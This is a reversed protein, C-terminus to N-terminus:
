VLIFMVCFIFIVFSVLVIVISTKVTYYITLPSKFFSRSKLVAVVTSVAMNVHFCCTMAANIAVTLMLTVIVSDTIFRKVRPAPNALRVHNLGLAAGLSM